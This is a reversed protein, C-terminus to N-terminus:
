MDSYNTKKYIRYLACDKKLDQTIKYYKVSYKKLLKINHEEYIYFYNLFYLGSNNQNDVAMLFYKQMLDYKKQERYLFGLKLMAESNGLKAACIYYKENLHPIYEQYHYYLGLFYPYYQNTNVLKTNIIKTKFFIIFDDYLLHLNNIKNFYYIFSNNLYYKNLEINYLM